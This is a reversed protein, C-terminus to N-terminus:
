SCGADGIVRTGPYFSKEHFLPLPTKTAIWVRFQRMKWGSIENIMDM